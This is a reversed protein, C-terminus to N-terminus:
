NEKVKGMDHEVKVSFSARTAGAEQGTATITGSYLRGDKDQGRRSAEIPIAIKFSGMQDVIVPGSSSYVGYEDDLNYVLEQLTCGEAIELVGSVWVTTEKGNPIFVSQPGVIVDKLMPPETCKNNGVVILEVSVGQGSNVEEISGGLIRPVLRGSYTGPPATPPIRIEIPVTVGLRTPSLFVGRAAVWDGPLNGTANPGLVVFLPASLTNASVTVTSQVANGPSVRFSLNGPAYSIVSAGAPVAVSFILCALILLWLRKM